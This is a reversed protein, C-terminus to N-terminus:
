RDRVERVAWVVVVSAAAVLFAGLLLLNALDNGSLCTNSFM